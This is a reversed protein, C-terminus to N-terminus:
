VFKAPMMKVQQNSVQKRKICECVNGPTTFGPSVARTVATTVTVTEDLNVLRKLSAPYWSFWRVM